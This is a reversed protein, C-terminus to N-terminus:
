GWVGLWAGFVYGLWAAGILAGVILEGWSPPRPPPLHERLWDDPYEAPEPPDEGLYLGM